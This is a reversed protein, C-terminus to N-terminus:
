AKEMKGTEHKIILGMVRYILKAAIYESSVDGPIPALEVCDFGVVRKAECLKEILGTVTQWSLGGPEPTGTARILSPDFGDMDISLYIRDSLGDLIDDALGPDAHLRHAAYIRNRSSKLYATEEESCARVGAVTVPCIESIRRATCGHNYKSGQYRDRMDAHADIHLSSLGPYKAAAARVAGISVTHEGGLLVPIQGNELVPTVAQEIRRVMDEPDNVPEIQPFTHIGAKYTDSGIEFDHCEIEASASLIAGPGSRTGCRFTVTGEYPAPIVVFRSKKEDSFERELACFNGPRFIDNQV